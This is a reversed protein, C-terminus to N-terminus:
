FYKQIKAYEKNHVLSNSPINKTILSGAGIIANDGISVGPLITSNAGISVNKGIFTHM